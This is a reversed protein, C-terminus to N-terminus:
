RRRREALGVDELLPDRSWVLSPRARKDHHRDPRRHVPAAQPYAMGLLYDPLVAWVGHVSHQRTTASAGHLRGFREFCFTAMEADIRLPHPVGDVRVLAQGDGGAGLLWGGLMEHLLRISRAPMRQLSSPARATRWRRQARKFWSRSL